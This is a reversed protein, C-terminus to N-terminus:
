AQMEAQKTFSSNESAVFEEAEREARIQRARARAIVFARALVIEINETSEDPQSLLQQDETMTSTTKSM